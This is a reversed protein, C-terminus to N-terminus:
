DNWEGKPPVPPNRRFRRTLEDDRVREGRLWQKVATEIVKSPDNTLHKIQDLVEPDIHISIQTKEPQRQPDTPHNEMSIAAM